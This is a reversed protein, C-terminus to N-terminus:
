GKLIQGLRVFTAGHEVALLYDSSMGMSLETCPAYPLNLAQIENRLECMTEYYSALLEDDVNMLLDLLANGVGLVKAM